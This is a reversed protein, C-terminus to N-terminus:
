LSGEWLSLQESVRVLLGRISQQDDAVRESLELLDCVLCIDELDTATLELASQLSAISSIPIQKILPSKVSYKNSRINIV